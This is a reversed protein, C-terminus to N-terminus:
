LATLNHNARAALTALAQLLEPPEDVHFDADLGLLYVALLMPTAAGLLLRCRTADIPEVVAVPPLQGTVVEAPAHVVAHTRWTGFATAVGQAVREIAQVDSLARTVQPGAFPTNVTAAHLATLRHSLRAPLVHELKVLARLAIEELGHVTGAAASRLSIAVAVADEDNLLLPPLVAGSGLRYGGATGTSSDIPYGLGRLRAVDNHLTRESIELRRALERGSWDHRAQWLALLQLLRGTSSSSVLGLRTRSASRFTGCPRRGDTTARDDAVPPM